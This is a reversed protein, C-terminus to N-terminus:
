LKVEAEIFLDLDGDLVAQTDSTEIQTRTDKVLQYPHLV